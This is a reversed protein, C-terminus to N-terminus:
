RAAFYFGFAWCSMPVHRNGLVRKAATAFGAKDLSTPRSRVAIGVEGEACLRRNAQFLHRAGVEAASKNDRADAFDGVGL